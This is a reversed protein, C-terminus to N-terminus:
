AGFLEAYREAKFGIEITDGLELVPRKILAPHEVLLAAVNTDTTAERVEDPLKRWTTGRKNLLVQWNAKSLWADVKDQTLGDKRFDHFTAGTNNEDCWRRAKRVTDCNSIGYLTPM